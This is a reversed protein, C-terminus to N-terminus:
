WDMYGTLITMATQFLTVTTGLGSCRLAPLLFTSLDIGTAQKYAGYTCVETSVPPIIRRIDTEMNAKSLLKDACPDDAGICSMKKM